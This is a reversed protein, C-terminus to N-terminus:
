HLAARLEDTVQTAAAAVIPQMAHAWDRLAPAAAPSPDLRPRRALIMALRHAVQGPDAYGRPAEPHGVRRCLTAFREAGRHHDWRLAKAQAGASTMADLYGDLVGPQGIFAGDLLLEVGVHAGALVAPRPLARARLQVRAEGMLAVFTPAEHFAADVRHHCEIGAAVTAHSVETLRAGCMREFDPLMAGFAFAGDDHEWRAAMAHGVFNM